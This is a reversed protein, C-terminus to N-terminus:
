DKKVGDYSHDADIFLVDVPKGKLAKSVKSLTAIDHSNKRFYTQNSLPTYKSICVSVLNNCVKSFCQSTGGRDVGIEVITEAKINEVLKIFEAFESPIQQIMKKDKLEKIFDLM